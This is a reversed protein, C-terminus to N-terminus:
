KQIVQIYNKAQFEVVMYVRIADCEQLWLQRVAERCLVLEGMREGTAEARAPAM